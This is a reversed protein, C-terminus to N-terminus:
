YYCLSGPAKQFFFIKEIFFLIFIFIVIIFLFLYFLLKTTYKVVGDTNYSPPFRSEGGPNGKPGTHTFQIM